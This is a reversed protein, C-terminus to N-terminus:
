ATVSVIPPPEESVENALVDPLEKELFRLRPYLYATATTLLTVCGMVMFLLGVGRGPGVGIFRGLNTALPGHEALLPEFVRDALPGAALYALPVAAWAIMARMAFVRGQIEVPVKSQWIAQSSGAIIPLCFLFVFSTAAVLFSNPRVGGLFLLLGQLATFCLVGRIRHKPGGWVSMALAGVLMGSGAISLVLGLIATSAFGLVLPTLLVQVISMLFNTATFFLLLGLLGPRARIFSWGVTAEELWNGQRAESVPSIAYRPTRVFLLTILAFIFSAIDLLMVAQISTATLIVGALVPSILEAAAEGFQVLGNARGYHQKPVLITTLAAYAPWQFAKCALSISVAVYIHWVEFRGTWLLLAMIATSFCAGSDSLIMVWRRDRRDVIVGALPAIIIGPLSTAFAILAFETASGTRLYVWVGLAFGTLGSGILSIVQGFWILAFTRLDQPPTDTRM